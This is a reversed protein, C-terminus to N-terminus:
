NKLLQMCKQIIEFPYISLIHIFKKQLLDQYHFQLTKEKMVQFYSQHTNRVLAKQKETVQCEGEKSQSEEPIKGPVKPGVDLPRSGKVQMQYKAKKLNVSVKPCPRRFNDDVSSDQATTPQSLKLYHQLHEFPLNTM